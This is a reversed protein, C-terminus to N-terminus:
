KNTITGAGFALSDTHGALGYTYVTYARGDQITINPLDKLLTKTGAPFIQFDYTGAPFERFKSPQLYKQSVFAPTGNATIDFGQSRPSANIFRIKGRGISPLNATDTTFLYTVSDVSKLGAIFLTYKYNPKLVSDISFYNGTSIVTGTIASTGPRIQFPNTVSPLYFYGSSSPYFYSGKNVKIYNIYLDISGLDPSLNIVQYQINLTAANASSSKGCSSILPIVM